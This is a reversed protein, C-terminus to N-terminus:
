QTVKWQRNFEDKTINFGSANLHGGGGFLRSIKTTDEHEGISRLSVMYRNDNGMREEVYVVCAMARLGRERSRQALMNGLDSRTRPNETLVGLCQGFQKSNAVGGLNVVFSDRMERECTEMLYREAPRGAEMLQDVSLAKLQEFLATNKTIDYEIRM